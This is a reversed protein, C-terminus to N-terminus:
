KNKIFGRQKSVKSPSISQLIMYVLVMLLLGILFPVILTFVFDPNDCFINEEIDNIFISNMYGGKVFDNPSYLKGPKAFITLEELVDFYYYSVLESCFMGNERKVGGIPFGLWVGLIPMISNSYILNKTKQIFCYTRYKFDNPLLHRDLHRVNILNYDHFLNDIKLLAVGKVYKKTLEDYRKKSNSELVYLEGGSTVIKKNKIRIAIGVHNYKTSLFLKVFSSTIKDSSFLLLDGTLVNEINRVDPVNEVNEVNINFNFM